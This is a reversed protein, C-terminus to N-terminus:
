PRQKLFSDYARQYRPRADHKDFEALNKEKLKGFADTAMQILQITEKLLTQALQRHEAASREILETDQGLFEHLLERDSALLQEHKTMVQLAQASDLLLVLFQLFLKEERSCEIGRMSFDAHEKALHILTTIARCKESRDSVPYNMLDGQLLKVAQDYFVDRGALHVPRNLSLERM